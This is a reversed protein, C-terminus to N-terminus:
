GCAAGSSSALCRTGAACVNARGTPDCSGGFPVEPVCRTATSLRDGNCGLGPDCAPLVTHCRGAHSGDPVCTAAALDGLCHSRSACVDAVTTLDCRAGDSVEPVETVTLAFTGTEVLDPRPPTVGAVLVYVTAGAAVREVTTFRSRRDGPAWDDSCGLSTASPDCRDIVWAVTDFTSATGPNATSVRLHASTATVYRLAVDHGVDLVCDGPIASAPPAGENTGTYSTTAGSTTGEANLDIVLAAACPDPLTADLRPHDIPMPVDYLPAVDLADGADAANAADPPPALDRRPVADVPGSDYPAADGHSADPAPPRTQCGTAFSW